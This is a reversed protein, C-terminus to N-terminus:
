RKRYGFKRDYDKHDFIDLILAIIEIENGRLTYIMRWGGPLNVKWLNNVDYKVIYDKPIRDKPVQVGYQPNIRLFEIKQNVARLLTQYDSQEIGKQVEEGVVKNLEEFESKADGGIIVRVSKGKFSM